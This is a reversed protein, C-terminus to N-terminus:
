KQSPNRTVAMTWSTNKRTSLGRYWRLASMHHAPKGVINKM